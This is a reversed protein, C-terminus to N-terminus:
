GNTRSRCALAPAERWHPSNGKERSGDSPWAMSVKRQKAEQAKIDYNYSGIEMWLCYVGTLVAALACGVFVVYVTNSRRGAWLALPIYGVAILYVATSYFVMELVALAFAAVPLGIACAVPLYIPLKSPGQEEDRLRPPEGDAFKEPTAIEEAPVAVAAPEAEAVAVVEPEAVHEAPAPEEGPMRLNDFNPTKGEDNAV